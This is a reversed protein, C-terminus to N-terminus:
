VVLNTAFVGKIQAEEPNGVGCQYIYVNIQHYKRM